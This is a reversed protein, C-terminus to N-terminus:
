LLDEDFVGDPETAAVTREVGIAAAVDGLAPSMIQSQGALVGLLLSAALAAGAFGRMLRPNPWRTRQQPPAGTAAVRPTRASQAVIREALAAIKADPVRPALALLRDLKEADKLRQQAEPSASLVQSVELRARAPWRTRDGGFTDLVDQLQSM